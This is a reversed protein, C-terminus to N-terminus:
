HSRQCVKVCLMIWHTSLLTTASTDQWVTHPPPCQRHWLLVRLKYKTFWLRYQKNLWLGVMSNNKGAHLWMWIVSILDFLLWLLLWFLKYLRFGRLQLWIHCIETTFSLEVTWSVSHNRIHRIELSVHRRFSCFNSKSYNQQRQFLDSCTKLKVQHPKFGGQPSVCLCIFCVDRLPFICNAAYLIEYSGKTSKAAGKTGALPFFFFLRSTSLLSSSDHESHMWLETTTREQHAANLWWSVEEPECVAAFSMQKFLVFEPSCLSRPLFPTRKQDILTQGSAKDAENQGGGGKKKKKKTRWNISWVGVSPILCFNQLEQFNKNLLPGRNPRSTPPSSRSEERDSRCSGILTCIAIFVLSSHKFFVTM